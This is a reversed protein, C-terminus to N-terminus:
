LTDDLIGKHGQDRELSRSEPNDISSGCPFEEQINEQQGTDHLDQLKPNRPSAM